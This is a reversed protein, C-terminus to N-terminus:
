VYKKIYIPLIEPLNRPIFSRMGVNDANQVKTPITLSKATTTGNVHEGATHSIDQQSWDSQTFHYGVPNLNAKRYNSILNFM